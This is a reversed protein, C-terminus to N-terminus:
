LHLLFQLLFANFISIQDSNGWLASTCCQLIGCLLLAASAFIIFKHVNHINKNKNTIYCFYILLQDACITCVFQGFFNSLFQALFQLFFNPQYFFQEFYDPFFNHWFNPLFIPCFISFFNSRDAAKTIIIIHSVIINKNRM